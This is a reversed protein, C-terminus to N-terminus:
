LVERAAAIMALRGVVGYAYFRNVPEKFESIAHPPLHCNKAFALPVFNMGPANLNESISRNKHVRYFGGVVHRGIHYVVPEAVANEDGVTEFTYVGEQMIAKTVANGGKSAAMKTRQKRNLQLLESADQIMMVAMGYTGQDAKVVLFPPQDIKYEAYKKQVKQFLINARDALCNISEKDSFDVEGCHDFYPNILWPDIDIIKSFEECVDNYLRFHDSKLRSFWGLKLPPIFVQKLNKFIDPIGSSLDNNLVICCPFYDKVGVRDHERILPELIIERGSPLLQTLPEKLDPIMSGIRVDFGARRLIESLTALNEFYFINRTHNEPILLLRTATACKEAMTAQVAQVCLAMMEPNLNNFGAPFLNTDVPALKFGANRLDVSGYFTPPTLQWQQRFWSEIAVQTQLFKKELDLLPGTLATELHPVEFVPM